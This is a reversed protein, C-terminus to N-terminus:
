AFLKSSDFAVENKMIHYCARSLKHALAKLAIINNTEAKKREYFARAKPNHRKAFNAAEIFAWALYKNGNKRNGVGKKKDNSIRKSEVCRCYSAYNGARKFRRIDGTELLITEALIDGIGSTSKLLEFTPVRKVQRLIVTELTRIQQTLVKVMNLNSTMALQVNMDGVIPLVFRKGKIANTSLTQGTQRQYQGKLSIIHRSRDQVLFMRRRLLDRLGREDRPCIHGTPLIGLRMLHALHFADYRDDTQKLGQYQIIQATNVLRVKFGADQLADALWYWNYSSEIAVAQLRARYRKLTQVILVPDNDLRKELLRKDKDNIVSLFCNNSHLDIGCYLTM